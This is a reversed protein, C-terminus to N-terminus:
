TQQNAFYKGAYCDICETGKHESECESEQKIKAKLKEKNM